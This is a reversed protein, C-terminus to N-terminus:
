SKESKMNQSECITLRVSLGQDSNSESDIRMQFDIESKRLFYRKSRVKLQDFRFRFFNLAPVM